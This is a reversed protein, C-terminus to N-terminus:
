VEFLESMVGGDTPLIPDNLDTVGAVYETTGDSLLLRDGTDLVLDHIGQEGFGDRDAPATGDDNLFGFPAEGGSEEIYIAGVAAPVLERTRQAQELTVGSGVFLEISAPYVENYEVTSAGAIRRLFEIIREPEGGSRNLSIRIEIADRYEADTRGLRPEGVIEGIGDLQAGEAADTWRQTLLDYAVDELAQIREGWLQILGKLKDADQYQSTLRGIADDTHTTIKTIPWDAM